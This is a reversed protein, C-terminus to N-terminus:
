APALATKLDRLFSRTPRNWRFDLAEASSAGGWRELARDNELRALPGKLQRERKRIRERMKKDRVVAEPNGDIVADLWSNIFERTM